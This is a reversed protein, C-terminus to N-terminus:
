AEVAVAAVPEAFGIGPVLQPGDPIEDAVVRGGHRRLLRRQAEVAVETVPKALGGGEDVQARNPGQVAIGLAAASTSSAASPRYRSCPSWCPWAL